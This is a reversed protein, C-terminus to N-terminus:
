ERPQKDKRNLDGDRDCRAELENQLLLSYREHAKHNWRFTETLYNFHCCELICQTYKHVSTHVYGHLCPTLVWHGGRDSEMKNKHCSRERFGSSMLESLKALWHAGPIEGGRSGWCQQQLIPVIVALQKEPKPPNWSLVHRKYLWRGLEAMCM